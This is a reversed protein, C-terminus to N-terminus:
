DAYWEFTARKGDLGQIDACRYMPTHVGFLKAKWFVLNGGPFLYRSEVRIVQSENTGGTVEAFGIQAGTSDLVQVGKWWTLWWAKTLVFETWGPDIDSVIVGINDGDRLRHTQELEEWSVPILQLFGERTQVTETKGPQGSIVESLQPLTQLLTTVIAIFIPALYRQGVEPSTVSPFRADDRTLTRPQGGIAQIIAPLNDVLVPIFATLLSTVLDQSAERSDESARDTQIASILDPLFEIITPLLAELVVPLSRDLSVSMTTTPEAATAPQATIVATEQPVSELSRNGTLLNQVLVPLLIELVSPILGEVSKEDSVPQTSSRTKLSTSM